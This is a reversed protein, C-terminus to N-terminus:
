SVVIECFLSSGDVEVINPSLSHPAALARFEDADITTAKFGDKCVIVGDRTAAWDIPGLLGSAAQREFWELRDKWFRPSYSSFLVIGGQRTVRVAEAVLRHRDIAFASIGNQICFTLDFTHDGFGLSAADMAALFVRAPPPLLGRAMRLSSLSTDIGAVANVSGALRGLVRGYGCGLELVRMSPKVKALILEIEAALYARVRPPALEYCARLRGAALKESYYGAM